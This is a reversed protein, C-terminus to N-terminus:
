NPSYKELSDFAKETLEIAKDGYKLPKSFRELVRECDQKAKNFWGKYGQRSHLLSQIAANCDNLNTLDLNEIPNKKAM